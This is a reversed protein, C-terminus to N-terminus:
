NLKSIIIQNTSDFAAVVQISDPNLELENCVSAAHEADNFRLSIEPTRSWCRGSNQYEALYEDTDYNHILFGLFTCESPIEHTIRVSQETPIEM